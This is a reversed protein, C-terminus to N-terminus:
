FITDQFQVFNNNKRTEIVKFTYSPMEYIVIRNVSSFFEKISNM